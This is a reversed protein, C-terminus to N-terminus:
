STSSGFDIQVKLCKKQDALEFADQAKEPPFYHTVFMSDDINLDIFKELTLELDLSSRRSFLISSENIRMKHPNIEIFDTEPISIFIIKGSPAICSQAANLSNQNAGTEFIIDFKINKFDDDSLFNAGFNKKTLEKRFFNNEYIFINLEPFDNILILYILLGIPGSGIICINRSFISNKIEALYINHLAVGFPEILSAKSYTMSDPIKILQKENVVIYDRLSGYYNAGMFKVTPCLNSKDHVCFFCDGCSLGPEIAVRDYHKFKKSKSEVVIGAPEHGLSLPMKQKFSGLGGNRFYHLDSGCIGSSVIKLLIENESLKVNLNEEYILIKYTDELLIIRNKM